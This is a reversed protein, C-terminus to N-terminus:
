KDSFDIDNAESMQGTYLVLLYPKWENVLSHTQEHNLGQAPM